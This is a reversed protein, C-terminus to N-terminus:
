DKLRGAEFSQVVRAKKNKKQILTMTLSIIAHLTFGIGAALTTWGFNYGLAITGGVQVLLNALLMANASILVSYKGNRSVAYSLIGLVLAYVWNTTAFFDNGALVSLRTAGYIIGGFVLSMAFAIMESSFKGGIFLAVFAVVYFVATGVNFNFPGLDIVPIFNLGVVLALFILAVIWNVKFDKLVPKGLGVVVMLAIIGLIIISILM